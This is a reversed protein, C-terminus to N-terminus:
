TTLFEEEVIEELKGHGNARWLEMEKSQGIMEKMKAEKYKNTIEDDEDLLEDWDIEDAEEEAERRHADCPCGNGVGSYGPGSQAAEAELEAKYDNIADLMVANKRFEEMRKFTANNKAGSSQYIDGPAPMEIRKKRGM